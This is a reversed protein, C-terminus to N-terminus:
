DGEAQRYSAKGFPRWGENGLVDDHVEVTDEGTMHYTTRGQETEGFWHTVLTSDTATAKLELIEGRTDFWTGHLQDSDTVRYHAIARLVTRPQGNEILRNEFTLRVFRQDLEWEWVMSFTAPQGFLEGEGEWQGILQPIVDPVAPVPRSVDSPLLLPLLGMTLAFRFM